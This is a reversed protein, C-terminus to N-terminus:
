RRRGSSTELEFAAGERELRSYRRGAAPSSANSGGVDREFRLRGARRQRPRQPPVVRADRRRRDARRRQRPLDQRCRPGGDARADGCEQLVHWCSLYIDSPQISGLLDPRGLAELVQGARRCAEAQEGRQLAVQALAAEAEVVLYALQLREATELAAHLSAGAEVPLHRALQVYGRGVLARAEAMPSEARRGRAIAEDVHALAEDPRGQRLAVLALGLLADSAVVDFGGPPSTELVKNLSEEAADLDGVRREIEGIVTYATAIGELDDLEICLELGRAILRRGYALEGQQVVISALNSVVVAERYRFGSAVVIPLAQELAERADAFRGENYLM